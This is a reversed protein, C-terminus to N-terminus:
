PLSFFSSVKRVIQSTQLFRLLRFFNINDINLNFLFDNITEMKAQFFDKFIDGEIANTLFFFRKMKLIDSEKSWLSYSVFTLLLFFLLFFTLFFFGSHCAFTKTYKRPKHPKITTFIKRQIQNIANQSSFDLIFIFLDFLPSFVPSSSTFRELLSLFLICIM